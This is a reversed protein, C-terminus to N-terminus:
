TDSQQRSKKDTNFFNDYLGNIPHNGAQVIDGFALTIQGSAKFILAFILDPGQSFTEIDKDALKLRHDFINCLIGM